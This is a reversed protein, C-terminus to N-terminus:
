CTSRAKAKIKPFHKQVPMRHMRKYHPVDAKFPPTDEVYIEDYGAMLEEYEKRMKEAFHKVSDQDFGMAIIAAEKFADVYTGVLDDLLERTAIRM